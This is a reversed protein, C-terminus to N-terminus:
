CGSVNSVQAHPTSDSALSIHSGFSRAEVRSHSILVLIVLLVFCDIVSVRERAVTLSIISSRFLSSVLVLAFLGLFLRLLITMVDRVSAARQVHVNM